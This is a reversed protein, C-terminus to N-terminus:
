LKRCELFAGAVQLGASHQSLCARCIQQRRHLDTAADAKARAKALDIGLGRNEAAAKKLKLFGDHLCAILGEIAFKRLRSRTARPLRLLLWRHSKKASKHLEAELEEEASEEAQLQQRPHKM